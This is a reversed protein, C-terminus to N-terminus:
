SPDFVTVALSAPFFLATVEASEREVSGSLFTDGNSDSRGNIYFARTSAAAVSVVRFLTASFIHNPSLNFNDDQYAWKTISNGCSAESLVDSADCIALQHPGCAGDGATVDCDIFYETALIVVLTGPGPVEIDVRQLETASTSTTSWDFAASQGAAPLLNELDYVAQYLEEFNENVDSSSIVEGSSFTNAPTDDIGYVYAAGFLVVVLATWSLGRRTFLGKVARVIRDDIVIRIEM